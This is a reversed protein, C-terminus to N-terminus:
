LHPNALLPARQKRQKIDREQVKIQLKGQFTRDRPRNSQTISYRGVEKYQSLSSSINDAIKAM